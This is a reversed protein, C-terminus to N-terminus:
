LFSSHSDIFAEGNVDEHESNTFATVLILVAWAHRCLRTNVFVLENERYVRQSQVLQMLETAQVCSIPELM